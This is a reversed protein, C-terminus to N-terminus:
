DETFAVGSWTPTTGQLPTSYTRLLTGTTSVQFVWDYEYTSNVIWFTEGDYTMGTSYRNDITGGPPTPTAFLGTWALTGFNFVYVSDTTRDTCYMSGDVFVLGRIEPGPTAYYQLVTGDDPDVQYVYGSGSNAAWMQSGNFAIERITGSADPPATVSSIVTLNEGSYDVQVLKDDTGAAALWMETGSFTIGQVSGGPAVPLLDWTQVVATDSVRVKYLSDNEPNCLWLYGTAAPIDIVSFAGAAVDTQGDPNTVIVDRDGYAADNDIQINASISSSSIFTVETVTIGASFSVGLGTGEVFDTGSVVVTFTGGPFGVDPSVGSVSPPPTTTLNQTTWVIPGVSTYMFDYRDLVNGKRDIRFLNPGATTSSNLLWFDNGDHCLGAPWIYDSGMPPAPSTFATDFVQQVPNFYEVRDWDIDGYYFGESIGRGYVDGNSGVFELPRPSPTPLQYEATVEGASSLKYLTPPFEYTTSGSNLAWINSGDWAIGRVTGQGSPPAAFSQLVEISDGTIDIRAIIDNSGASSIWLKSGDYTIGQIRTSDLLPVTSWSGIEHLSADLAVLRLTTNDVTYFYGGKDTIAGDEDGDDFFPNDCSLLLPLAAIVLILGARWGIRCTM